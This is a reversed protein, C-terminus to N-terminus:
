LEIGKQKWNRIATVGIVLLVLSQVALAYQKTLISYILWTIDAGVILYQGRLKPKSVYYVGFLVLSTAVCSLYITFIEFM